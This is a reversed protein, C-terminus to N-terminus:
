RGRAEQPYNRPNSNFRRQANRRAEKKRRIASGLSMSRPDVDAADEDPELTTVGDSAIGHGHAMPGAGFARSEANARDRRDRREVERVIENGLFEIGEEISMPSIKEAHKQLLQAALEPHGAALPFRRNIQRWFDRTAEHREIQAQVAAQDM